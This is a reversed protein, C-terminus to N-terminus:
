LSSTAPWWPKGTSCFGYSSSESAPASARTSLRSNVAFKALRSRKQPSQSALQRQRLTRGWESNGRWCSKRRRRKLAPISAGTDKALKPNRGKVLRRYVRRYAEEDQVLILMCGMAGLLAGMSIRDLSKVPTPGILKNVYCGGLGSIEDLTERSVQLSNARQRLAQHLDSYSRILALPEIEM